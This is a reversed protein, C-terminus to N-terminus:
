YEFYIIPLIGHWIVRNNEDIYLLNPIPPNSELSEKFDNWSNKEIYLAGPNDKRLVWWDRKSITYKDTREENLIEIEEYIDMKPKNNSEPIGIPPVYNIESLPVIGIAFLLVFFSLIVIVVFLILSKTKKHNLQEM